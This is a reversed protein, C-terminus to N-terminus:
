YRKPFETMPAKKPTATHVPKQGVAQCQNLFFFHSHLNCNTFLIGTSMRRAGVAM